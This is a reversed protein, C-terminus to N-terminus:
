FVATIPANQQILEGAANMAFQQQPNQMAPQQQVPRDIPPCGVYMSERGSMLMVMCEDFVQATVGLRQLMKSRVYIEQTDTMLKFTIDTQTRGSKNHREVVATLYFGNADPFPFWDPWDTESSIAHNPVRRPESLAAIRDHRSVVGSATEIDLRAVSEGQALGMQAAPVTGSTDPSVTQSMEEDSVSGILTNHENTIGSIFLYVSVCMAFVAVWFKPMKFIATGFGAKTASGTATSAYLLHVEVPVKTNTVIDDKTPKITSSLPEHEFMRTRRKFGAGDKSRHAVALQSVSKIEKGLAGINPTCLTIDWNYKRHRQFSEEFNAPMIISGDDAVIREGLDDTFEEKPKFNNRNRRYYDIFDQPLIDAFAEVGQYHNKAMDFGLSKSFIDQVEDILIYAGLPCWNYWHQWLKRGKDTQSSFRYIRATTPFREGLLKEIEEITRMGEVNTVVTRGERLAPLLEFWVAYSSKYSGAPGHRIIVAM